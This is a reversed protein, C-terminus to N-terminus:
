RAPWASDSGCVVYDEVASSFAICWVDEVQAGLEVLRLGALQADTLHALTRVPLSPYDAIKESIVRDIAPSIGVTHFSSEPHLQPFIYSLPQNIALYSAPTAAVSSSIQVSFPNRTDLGPPIHGWSPVSVTALLLVLTFGSAISAARLTKSVVNIFVWLLLGMILEGAVFYRQYAFMSGWLGLSVFFFLLMPFVPGILSTRQTSVLIVGLLLFFAFYRFDAIPIESTRSTGTIAEIVFLGFDIPSEFFWRMDRWNGEDYFSSKFVSNFFPFIPSDWNIALHVNWWMTPLAGLFGGLSFFGLKKYLERFSHRGLYAVVVLGAVAFPANTLKIGSALGLSLGSLFLLSYPSKSQSLRMLLYLSWLILPATWSEFFSAGIESLWIPSVLGISCALLHTYSTRSIGLGIGLQRSLLFLAPIATSQVLMILLPGIPFPLLTLGYILPTITPNLFSQVGSPAIDQGLRGQTIGFGQFYHYNLLDWNADQGRVLVYACLILVSIAYFLLFGRQSKTETTLNSKGM